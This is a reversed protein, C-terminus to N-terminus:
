REWHTAPGFDCASQVARCLDKQAYPKSLFISQAPMDAAAPAIRGSTIVLAIPPWRSRIIAALRLGDMSGALQVDTFVVRIDQRRELEIVADGANDAVLVEYGAGQMVDRAYFALLPEDEVILVVPKAAPPSAM